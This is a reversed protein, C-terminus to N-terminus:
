YNFEILRLDINKKLLKFINNVQKYFCKNNKKKNKDYISEKYLFYFDKVVM